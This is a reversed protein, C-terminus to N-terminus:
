SEHITNNAQINNLIISVYRSSAATTKSVVKSSILVALNLKSRRWLLLLM